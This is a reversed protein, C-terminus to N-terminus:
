KKTRSLLANVERDFDSIYNKDQIIRYKEYEKEALAIAVETRRITGKPSNKGDATTEM